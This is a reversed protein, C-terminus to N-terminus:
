PISIEILERNDYIVAAGLFQELKRLGVWNPGVVRVM